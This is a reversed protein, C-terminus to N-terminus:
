WITHRTHNIQQQGEPVVLRRLLLLLVSCLM